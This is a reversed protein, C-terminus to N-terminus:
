AGTQAQPSTGSGGAASEIPDHTAEGYRIVHIVLGQGESRDAQASDHWGLNKLAMVAGSASGRLGQEYFNEVHLLARSVAEEFEPRRALAELKKRGALGLALLLGSFTVPSKEEECRAFYAEARREFEAPTTVARVAM